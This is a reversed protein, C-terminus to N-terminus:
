FGITATNGNSTILNLPTSLSFAAAQSTLAVGALANNAPIALAITASGGIAAGSLTGLNGATYGFCGPMGIATLDIGPTLPASGFFQFALPVLAPVNTVTYAFLANGVSPLGSNTM